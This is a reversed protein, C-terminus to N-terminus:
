PENEDPEVPEILGLRSMEEAFAAIDGALQAEEVEYDDVLADVIEGLRRRGDCLDLFSAGTENLVLAESRDQHVVVAEEFLRRYRVRSSRRWVTEMAIM